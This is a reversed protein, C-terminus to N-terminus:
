HITSPCYNIYLIFLIYVNKIQIYLYFTSWSYLEMLQEVNVLNFLCM